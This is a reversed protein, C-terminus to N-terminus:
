IKVKLNTKHKKKNYKHPHKKRWQAPTEVIYDQKEWIGLMNNRAYAQAKKLRDIYKINPPFDYLLAQGNKLLEENVLLTKSRIFVYGLTRGYRDQEQIDTEICVEKNLVLMTLFHQANPGYPLQDHEFADIGLFRIKYNNEENDVNRIKKAEKNRQRKAEKDGQKEPERSRAEVLVTDGDFVQKVLYQTGEKSCDKSFLKDTALCQTNLILLCLLILISNQFLKLVVKKIKFM